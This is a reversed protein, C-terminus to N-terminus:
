RVSDRDAAATASSPRRGTYKLLLHDLSERAARLEWRLTSDRTARGVNGQGSDIRAQIATLRERVDEVGALLPEAHEGLEALHLRARELPVDAILADLSALASQGAVLAEELAELPASSVGRLAGRARTTAQRAAALDAALDRRLFARGALAVEEAQERLSVLVTAVGEPARGALARGEPLFATDAGPRYRVAVNGVLDLALIEIAADRRPRYERDVVMTVRVRGAEVLEVRRVRGVPVGALVVPDGGGLGRAADFEAIVTVPGSGRVVWGGTVAVVAVLAGLLVLTITGAQREYEHSLDLDKIVRFSSSVRQPLSRRDPM